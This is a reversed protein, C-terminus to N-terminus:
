GSKLTLIVCWPKERSYWKPMGPRQLEIIDWLPDEYFVEIQQANFYIVKITRKNAYKEVLRNKFDVMLEKEFPNFMYFLTADDPMSNRVDGHVIEVNRFKNLTNKAIRVLREDLEVGVIRNKYRKSILWALVRGTGCGADVIVDEPQIQNKAFAERLIWVATSEYRMAGEDAYPNSITFNQSHGFYRIDFVWTELQHLYLSIRDRLGWYIKLPWKYLPLRCFSSIIDLM